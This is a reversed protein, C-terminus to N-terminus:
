LKLIKKNGTFLGCDFVHLDLRLHMEPMFKAGALKIDKFCFIM